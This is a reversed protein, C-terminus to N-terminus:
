FRGVVFWILFEYFKRATWHNPSQAKMASPVHEIGPSSLDRCAM